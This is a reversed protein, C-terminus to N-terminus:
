NLIHPGDLIVVQDIPRIEKPYLAYAATGIGAAALITWGIPGSIIGATVGAIGAGASGAAVGLGTSAMITNNASTNNGIPLAVTYVALGQAKCGSKTQLQKFFAETKEKGMALNSFTVIKESTSNAEDMLVLGPFARMNDGQAFDLFFYNTPDSFVSKGVKNVDANVNFAPWQVIHTSCNNTFFKNKGSPTQSKKLIDGPSLSRNNIVLIGTEVGIYKQLESPTFELAYLDTGYEFYVTNKETHKFIELLDDSCSTLVNQALLDYLTSSKKTITEQTLDTEEPFFGKIKDHWVQNRYIQETCKEVVNNAYASLSAGIFLLFLTIIKKM